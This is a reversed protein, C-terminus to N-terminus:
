KSAAAAPTINRTIKEFQMQLCEAGDDPPPSHPDPCWQCWCKICWSLDSVTKVM